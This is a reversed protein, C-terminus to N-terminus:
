PTVCNLCLAHAVATGCHAAREDPGPPEAAENECREESYRFSLLSELETKIIAQYSCKAVDFWIRVM